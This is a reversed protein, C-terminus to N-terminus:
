SIYLSKSIIKHELNLFFFIIIIIRKLLSALTSFSLFTSSEFLLSPLVPSVWNISTLIDVPHSGPSCTSSSCLSLVKTVSQCNVFITRTDLFHFFFSSLEM